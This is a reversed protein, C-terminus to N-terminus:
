RRDRPALRGSSGANFLEVRTSDNLVPSPFTEQKPKRTRLTLGKGDASPPRRGPHFTRDSFQVIRQTARLSLLFAIAILFARFNVGRLASLFLGSEGTLGRVTYGGEGHPRMYLFDTPRLLFCNLVPVATGARQPGQYTHM